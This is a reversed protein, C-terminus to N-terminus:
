KTKEFTANGCTPCHPLTSTKELEVCTGCNCCVYEGKGCTTNCVCKCKCGM